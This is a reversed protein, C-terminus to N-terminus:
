KKQEKIFKYRDRAYCNDCIKNQNQLVTDDIFETKMKLSFRTRNSCHKGCDKICCIKQQSNSYDIAYCKNCIKDQNKLIMDDIFAAKMKLSFRTRNSCRRGCDKICCIKQTNNSYNNLVFYPTKYQMAPYFYFYNIPYIIPQHIGVDNSSNSTFVPKTTDKKTIDENEFDYLFFEDDYEKEGFHNFFENLDDFEM